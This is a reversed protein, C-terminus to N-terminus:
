MTPQLICFHKTIDGKIGYGNSYFFGTYFVDTIQYNQM